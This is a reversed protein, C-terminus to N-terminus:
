LAACFHADEEMRIFRETQRRPVRVYLHPFYFDVIISMLLFNRPFPLASIQECSRFVSGRAATLSTM